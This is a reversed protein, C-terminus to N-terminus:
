QAYIIDILADMADRVTITSGAKLYLKSAPKSAANRSVHLRSNMHVKGAEVADFLVYLTMMKTLSAPHRLSDADKSALVRGTNVDVAIYAESRPAAAATHASFIIISFMLGIVWALTSLKRNQIRM